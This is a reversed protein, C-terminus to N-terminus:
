CTMISSLIRRLLSSIEGTFAFTEMLSNNKKEKKDFQEMYFMIFWFVPFFFIIRLLASVVLIYLYSFNLINNQVQSLLAKLFNHIITWYGSNPYFKGM